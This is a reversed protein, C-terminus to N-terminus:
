KMVEVTSVAKLQMDGPRKFETEFRGVWHLVKVAVAAPVPEVVLELESDLVAVVVVDLVRVVVGDPLPM